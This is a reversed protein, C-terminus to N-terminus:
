NEYMAWLYYIDLKHNWVNDLDSKLGCNLYTSLRSRSWRTWNFCQSDTIYEDLRFIKSLIETKIKSSTSPVTRYEIIYPTNNFNFEVRIELSFRTFMVGILQDNRICGFASCQSVNFIKYPNPDPGEQILELRNSTEM